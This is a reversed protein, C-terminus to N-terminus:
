SLDLEFRNESYKSLNIERKFTGFDTKIELEYKGYFGQFKNAEGAHYELTGTGVDIEVCGM